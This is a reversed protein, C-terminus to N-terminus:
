NQSNRRPAQTFALSVFLPGLNVTPLLFSGPVNPVLFFWRTMVSDSGILSAMNKCDGLLYFCWKDSNKRPIEKQLRKPSLYLFVDLLQIFWDEADFRKEGYVGFCPFGPQTEQVTRILLQTGFVHIILVHLFVSCNSTFVDTTRHTINKSGYGNTIEVLGNYNGPNTQHKDEHKNIEWSTTTHFDTINNIRMGCIILEEPLWVYCHFVEYIKGNFWVYCHFMEYIKGNISISLHKKWFGATIKPIEWSVMNPNESVYHSPWAAERGSYM